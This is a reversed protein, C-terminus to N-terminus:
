EPLVRYVRLPADNAAVVLLEGGDRLRVTALDRVAGEFGLDGSIVEIASALAVGHLADLRGTEADVDYSGGALLTRGAADTAAAFVPGAQADAPLDVLSRRGSLWASSALRNAVLHRAGRVADAGLVADLDAEAYAAFRVFKKKLGPLQKILANRTALPYRRGDVDVALLPDVQGNDDFDAAYLHLPARHRTNLGLNGLVLDERGDGDLDGAHVDSYLGESGGFGFEDSVEALAGGTAAFARVPMFEGVIVLLPRGDGRLDALTADTVMGPARLERAATATADTFAGAGDNVLVYSRPATPYAGPVCRGGVFLDLDGDDDVDLPVVASSPHAQGPLAGQLPTLTGADNRYLRDRYVASGPAAASGGSAVYLDLDGDGDADFWAADVDERAADAGFAAQPVARFRGGGVQRFLRGAQGAAGGVFVDEAGDGDFDAVALCPGQRSLRQPLLPERGFDEFDNEAHAFDLGTGPAERLVAPRARTPAFVSAPGRRADAAAHDLALRQDVAVDTRVVARGDPYRVVLTDLPEDTAFGFHLAPSVASFFGRTRRLEAVQARGAQVVRATAGIAEPNDAPGRLALTLYHGEGRERTRNRLLQAPGDLDNVVLDLDGDSDLDAYAAGSSYSPADVGWAGSADAFTGDPTQAFAYNPLKSTPILRAYEAFEGFRAPTLGGTRKVSDVTYTLYDLNSVDRRYGNTVFLDRRGDLDFDALLAAWSWDTAALGLQDARDSFGGGARGLHVANRMVQEGYGYRALSNYREQVMTTMLRKRRRLDPALMDLSVLDPRADGDLDAVDVGMTHNSMHPLWQATADRLGGPGGLLVRDPEIYDNGVYLDSYGDANLDAVTASLGWARNALGLEDTVDAFKGGGRNEYLRDTDYPSWPDTNRAYGGGPLPRATVSNVRKFEVPHNLVYVDLDGDGDYDFFNAHNSASPDALGYERARETFAGRGDNVFLLNRRTEDPTIGTRTVYLDPAGDANVDVVSVGTKTGDPAAVGAEATADRFRWDGENLYLANPGQTATFYLDERGDGDADLVAVGGGNYLYSNTLINNTWTEEVHNVFAVGTRASDLLEFRTPEGPAGPKDAATPDAPADACAQALVLLLAAAAAPVVPAAGRRSAPLLHPM